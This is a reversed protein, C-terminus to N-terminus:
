PCAVMPLTHLLQHNHRRMLSSRCSSRRISTLNRKSTYVTSWSAMTRRIKTSIGRVSCRKLLRKSKPFRTSQIFEGMFDMKKSIAQQGGMQKSRPKSLLSGLERMQASIQALHGPLTSLKKHTSHSMVSLSQYVISTCSKHLRISRYSCAEKHSVHLYM